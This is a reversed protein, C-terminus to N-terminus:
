VYFHKEIETGEPFIAPFNGSFLPSPRNTAHASSRFSLQELNYRDTGVRAGLSNFFKITTYEINRLRSQASGFNAAGGEINLSKLLGIYGLGIHVKSSQQDLSISGNLVTQQTHKSGDTVVSITEGELHDIGSLSATTLYWNGVAMVVTNNFAKKIRCDVHTTDTYATIEARGEGVGDIAKKWIERGVDSSTFVAASATFTIGTGTTAAPTMTAGAIIGAFTGDYTLASDLHIYEKQIEFMANQYTNLDSVKNAAGTYFDEFEPIVPEDEFFEVYRRIIGNITREIVFWVQDHANPMAIVAVSKAKADTGGFTHRHWGSVDEKAKFTVGVVDGNNKVGWLIDPRGNQFAVQIIGTQTMHDAVLNRDVSVYSDAMVDFEFSRMNLGGRQTFLLINGLPIPNQ